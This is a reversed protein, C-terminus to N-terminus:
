SRLAELRQQMESIDEEEVAVAQQSTSPGSATAQAKTREKTPPLSETVVAPASGMQGATLEWLVKDVEKQAEEELEDEDVGQVDDLTEDLMEEIIGAKMMERSLEEMTHSIEQVKMLQSMSKMVDASKEMAGAVRLTALQQSMHMM